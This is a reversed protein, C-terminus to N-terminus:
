KGAPRRDATAPPCPGGDRIQRVKDRFAAVWAAANRGEGNVADFSTVGSGTFLATLQTESLQDLLQLLHTRGNESIQADPFTGGSFPLQKMSVRCSRADQWVPTARWNPLDLKAPGLTAGADQIVALPTDCGGDARDKGPPCVLRQNEAKNDWHALVVALLRLADM